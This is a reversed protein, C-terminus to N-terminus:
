WSRVVFTIAAVAGTTTDNAALAAGAIGIWEAGGADFVISAPGEGYDGLVKVGPPLAKDNGVTITKAYNIESLSSVESDLTYNSTPIPTIDGMLCTATCVHQAQYVPVKSDPSPEQSATFVRFQGVTDGVDAILIPRIEVVTGPGRKFWVVPPTAAGMQGASTGASPLAPSGSWQPPVVTTVANTASFFALKGPHLPQFPTRHSGRACEPTPIFSM